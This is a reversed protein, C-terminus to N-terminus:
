YTAIRVAQRETGDETITLNRIQGREDRQFVMYDGIWARIHFRTESVPILQAMYNGPERVLWKGDIYQIEVSADDPYAYTGTYADKKDESLPYEPILETSITREIARRFRNPPVFDERGDRNFRDNLAILDPDVVMADVDMGQHYRESVGSLWDVVDAKYGILAERDTITGHGPVVATEANAHALATDIAEYQGTVGGSYFTAYWSTTFTDGMFVANSEPLYIIVDDFSHSAVHAVDIVEGNFRLTIRDQFTLETLATSYLANEQSIITAGQEVFFANGGSHDFDSHTNIVYRIPQDSITRIAELLRESSETRMADILLIGDDGVSVGVNCGHGSGGFIVYLQDSIQQVQFASSQAVVGRPVVALVVPVIVIWVLAYRASMCNTPCAYFHCVVSVVLNADDFQRGEADWIM